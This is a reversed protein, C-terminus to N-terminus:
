RFPSHFVGSRWSVVLLRPRRVGYMKAIGKAKLKGDIM